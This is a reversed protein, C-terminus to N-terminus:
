CKERGRDESKRKLITGDKRRGKKEGERWSKV